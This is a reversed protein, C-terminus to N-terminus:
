NIILLCNPYLLRGSDCHLQGGTFLRGDAKNNGKVQKVILSEPRKERVTRYKRHWDVAASGCLM